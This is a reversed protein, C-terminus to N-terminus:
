RGGKENPWPCRDYMYEVCVERPGHFGNTGDKAPDDTFVLSLSFFDNSRHFIDGEWWERVPGLAAALRSIGEDRLINGDWKM